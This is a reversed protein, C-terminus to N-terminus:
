SQRLNTALDAIRFPEALFDDMGPSLCREKTEVM